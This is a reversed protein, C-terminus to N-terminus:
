INDVVVYFLYLVNSLCSIVFCIKDIKRSKIVADRRIQEKDIVKMKIQGTVVLILGYSGIVFFLQFIYITIFTEFKKKMSPVLGHTTMLINVLALFVVVLPGLRGPVSEYPM